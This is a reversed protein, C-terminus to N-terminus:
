DFEPYDSATADGIMATSQKSIVGTLMGNFRTVFWSWPHGARVLDQGQENLYARFLAPASREAMLREKPHLSSLTEAFESTARADVAGSGYSLRGKRECWYRGFHRYWDHASWAGGRADSTGERLDPDSGSVSGGGGGTAASAVIGNKAAVERSSQMTILATGDRSRSNTALRNASRQSNTAVATGDWEEIKERSRGRKGCADCILLRVTETGGVTKLVRTPARCSPCIMAEM